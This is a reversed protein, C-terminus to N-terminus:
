DKKAEKALRRALRRTDGAYAEVGQPSKKPLPRRTQVIVRKKEYPWEGFTLVQDFTKRGFVLTEIKTFFREFGTEPSHYPDLWGVGGKRDAIFGDASTAVYVRLETM